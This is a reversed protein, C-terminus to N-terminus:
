YLTFYLHKTFSFYLYCTLETQRIKLYLVPRNISIERIRVSTNSASYYINGKPVCKWVAKKAGYKICDNSM